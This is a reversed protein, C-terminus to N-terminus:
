MGFRNYSDTSSAWETTPPPPPPPPPPDNRWDDEYKKVEEYVPTPPTYTSNYNNSGYGNDYSNTQEQVVEVINIASGMNSQPQFSNDFVMSASVEVGNGEPPSATWNGIYGKNSNAFEYSIEHGSTNTTCGNWVGRDDKQLYSEEGMPSVVKYCQNDGEYILTGDKQNDKGYLNIMYGNPTHKFEPNKVDEFGPISNINNMYYEKNQNPNNSFFVMWALISNPRYFPALEPNAYIFMTDFYDESGSRNNKITNQAHRENMTNISHKVAPRVTNIKKPQQQQKQKEENIKKQEKEKREKEEEDDHQFLTKSTTFLTQKREAKVTNIKSTGSQTNKNIDNNKSDLKEKIKSEIKKVNTIKDLYSDKRREIKEASWLFIVKEAELTVNNDRKSTINSLIRFDSDKLVFIKPDGILREKRVDLQQSMFIPEGEKGVITETLGSKSIDELTKKYQKRLENPEIADEDKFDLYEKVERVFFTKLQPKVYLVGMSEPITVAVKSLLIKGDNSILSLKGARELNNTFEIKIKYDM